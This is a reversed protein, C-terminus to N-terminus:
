VSRTEQYSAQVFVRMRDKREERPIDAQILAASYRKVPLWRNRQLNRYGERIRRFLLDEAAEGLHVIQTALKLAAKRDGFAAILALQENKLSHLKVPHVLGDINRALNTQLRFEQLLVAVIGKVQEHRDPDSEAMPTEKRGRVTWHIPVDVLDVFADYTGVIYPPIDYGATTMERETAEIVAPSGDPHREIIKM